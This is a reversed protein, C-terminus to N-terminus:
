CGQLCSDLLFQCLYITQGVTYLSTTPGTVLNETAATIPWTQSQVHVFMRDGYLFMPSNYYTSSFKVDAKHVASGRVVRNM